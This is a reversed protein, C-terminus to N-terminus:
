EVYQGDYQEEQTQCSDQDLLAELKADECVKPRGSREKDEIDFEGNKFKQFWERGCRESLAAEAYIEVLLRYVDAASKKLNFFYILLKRLHIVSIRSLVRCKRVCFFINYQYFNMLIELNHQQCIDLTIVTVNLM